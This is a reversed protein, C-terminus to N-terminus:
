IAQGWALVVDLLKNNAEFENELDIINQTSSCTTSDM